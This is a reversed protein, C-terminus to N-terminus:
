ATVVVATGLQAFRWLRKADPLDQRICGHSQPTGLQARTQLPEGDKTPITHFGIAANEGRTFRVFYEMTGSDDVGVAWRSRSYVEYAGPKLNETVSGSVLYSRRVDGKDDVLWVRQESIDFVVRRGVGSGEPLATPDAEASTSPVPDPTQPLSRAGVAATLDSTGRSPQDAYASQQTGDSGILGIGAGLTVSTVGLSVLAVGIRPYRPRAKRRAGGRRRPSPELRHRSM